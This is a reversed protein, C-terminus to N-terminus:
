LPNMDARVYFDHLQAYVTILLTIKFLPVLALPLGSSLFWAFEDHPQTHAKASKIAPAPPRFHVAMILSTVSM